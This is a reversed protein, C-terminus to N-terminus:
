RSGAHAAAAYDDQVNRASREWSFGALMKERGRAGYASRQGPDGLSSLATVMSEVNNEEYMVGNGTVRDVEGITNSV